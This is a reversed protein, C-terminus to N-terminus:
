VEIFGNDSNRKFAKGNNERSWNSAEQYSNFRKKRTPAPVFDKKLSPDPILHAYKFTNEWAIDDEIDQLSNRLYDNSIDSIICDLDAGAGFIREFDSM